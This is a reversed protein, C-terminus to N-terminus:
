ISKRSSAAFKTKFSGAATFWLIYDKLTDFNYYREPNNTKYDEIIISTGNKGPVYDIETLDYEPLINKNLTDWPANLIAKYRKDSTQSEVSLRASRFYTKTGLGKQGILNKLKLSDGLNFFRGFGEEDMGNGDDAIEVVLKNSQPNRDIKIMIEKASADHSNSIAERMVELPNILNKAIERYLSVQNVKLQKKM